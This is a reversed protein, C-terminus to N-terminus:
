CKSTHLRPHVFVEGDLVLENLKTDNLWKNIFLRKTVQDLGGIIQFHNTSVSLHKLYRLSSSRSSLDIDAVNLRLKRNNHIDLYKLGFRGQGHFCISSLNNNSLDMKIVNRPLCGLDVHGELQLGSLDFSYVHEFGHWKKRIVEVKYQTWQYDRILRGDAVIRYWPIVEKNTVGDIVRLLRLYFPSHYCQRRIEVKDVILTDLPQQRHIWDQIRKQKTEPDIIRHLIQNSSVQLTRLPIHRGSTFEFVAVNIYCRPNHEVNLSELAKGNLGDINLNTLDNFSLDLSRVSQPLSRLNLKGILNLHSLDLAIINNNADFHLRRGQLFPIHHHREALVPANRIAWEFWPITRINWIEMVMELLLLFDSKGILQSENVKHDNCVLTQMWKGVTSHEDSEPLYATSDDIDAILDSPLFSIIEQSENGDSAKTTGVVSYFLIICTALKPMM